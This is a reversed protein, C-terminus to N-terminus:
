RPVVAIRGSYDLRILLPKRGLGRLFEDTAARAGEYHGYDDVILVGGPVVRHYLQELEHRTSDYWDTDLRLLAIGGGPAREPLTEAVPGIVYHVKEPPYLTHSLNARVEKLDPPVAGESYLRDLRAGFSREAEAGAATPVDRSSSDTMGAFTDYLFLERDSVGRALLRFAAAMISGGRWVGCEVVSGPIENDVIYDIATCLAAVREASTVTFPRVREIIERVDQNIDAPVTQKWVPSFTTPQPAV